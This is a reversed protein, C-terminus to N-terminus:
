LIFRVHCIYLFLLVVICRCITLRNLQLRYIECWWLNHVRNGVTIKYVVFALHTRRAAIYVLPITLQLALKLVIAQCM